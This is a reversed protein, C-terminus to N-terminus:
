DFFERSSSRAAEAIYDALEGILAPDIPLQTVSIRLMSRDPPDVFARSGAGVVVGRRALAILAQTEEPVEVWVVVAHEGAHATLGRTTLADVLAARRSAYRARALAVLAAAEPSRILHALANQLIRSNSGVGHSRLNKARSILEAPGGMVSTRVDIGYAKCFSRIRLVRGHLRGGLSPSPATELPGISDDEVVWIRESRAAIVEALEAAREATLVHRAAFPAGPQVVFATAGADFAAILASPMPGAADAAVGIATVGLDRLTDLMGPALPEDVAVISGRPAASEIALLLAETGGGATMWAEPRFPWEGEVAERLRETMVERGLVNLTETDLTSLLADALPPHMQVDIICQSLDVHEWGSFPEHAGPLVTTGGRRQATLVTSVSMGGVRALERVTPLQAGPELDGALILQSVADALEDSTRGSVRELLWEASVEVRTAAVVM